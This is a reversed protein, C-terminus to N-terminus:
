DTLVQANEAAWHVYVPDGRHFITDYRRGYNQMRVFLMAGSSLEVRYRVDTGIYIAERIHGDLVVNNKELLLYDRVDVITAPIRGGMFQALEEGALGIETQLVDIKGHPYLNIKEPRIAVTVPQGTALTRGEAGGWLSLGGANIQAFQGLGTVEGALFNTEGIFDAVFRNRPHEYIAVPTGIQQVVGDSMVAIRDSMTLAEEQDHTVFIATMNSQKLLNRVEARVELRLAADLNSFPEDMLLVAPQPALARALAVRQQQGGSLEHPMKDGHGTLGVFDLMQNAREAQGRGLGFAVNQQVTLHPFIAYDQFVMGVRRKEPPQGRGDGAVQQGAITIRGGDLQEFGAILRLMTTKGCGSPGLVALIEGAAVNLSLDRVVPQGAFAKNLGHCTVTFQSM